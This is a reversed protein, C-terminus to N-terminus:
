ARPLVCIIVKNPNVQMELAARIYAAIRNDMNEAHFVALERLM